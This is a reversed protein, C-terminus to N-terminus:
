RQRRPAEARFAAVAATIDPSSDRFGPDSGDSDGVGRRDFRFVPYGTAAVRAALAQMGRHAGIRIQTGGNVILLGTSGEGPDLTGALTEAGCPFSLPRRM